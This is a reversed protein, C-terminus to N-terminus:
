VGSFIPQTGRFVKSSAGVPLTGEKELSHGFSSHERFIYISSFVDGLLVSVCM